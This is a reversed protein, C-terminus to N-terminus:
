LTGRYIWITEDINVWVIDGDRMLIAPCMDGPPLPLRIMWQKRSPWQM